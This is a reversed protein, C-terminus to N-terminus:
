TRVPHNGHVLKKKKKKKKKQAKDLLTSVEM